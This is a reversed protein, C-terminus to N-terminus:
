QALSRNWEMRNFRHGDSIDIGKICVIWGEAPLWEDYQKGKLVWQAKLGNKVLLANEHGNGNLSRYKYSPPPPYKAEVM